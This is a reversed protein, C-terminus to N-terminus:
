YDKLVVNSFSKNLSYKEFFFDLNIYDKNIFHNLKNM